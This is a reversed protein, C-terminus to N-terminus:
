GGGITNVAGRPRRNELADIINRAAALAIDRRVDDVASGLHPTFLTKDTMDLLERAIQRPRDDLAWDEMEFVDAAYGALRDSALAEVVAQEDVVSGRGVNILCAGRKMAALAKADILHYTAESLPLSVILYDSSGLLDALHTFRAKLESEAGKELPRRDVYRIRVDFGALRRAVTQGVAGMGLIGVTRGSVGRGYLMPRWGQFRGSRVWRDGAPVKRSLALLLTLALEATPVTLLDPVNTFWVGRRTCAEVDFNDYGKLAGAVIKLRPAQELFAGDLSDPMFVMLADADAVRRALTEAAPTERTPNLVLEGHPSLLEVVEPHVWHTLVIKPNM